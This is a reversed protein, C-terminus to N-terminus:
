VRSTPDNEAVRYIVDVLVACGEYGEGPAMYETGALETDIALGGHTRDSMVAQVVATEFQHALTDIPTESSESVRLYLDISFTQRWAIAPPAGMRDYERERTRESALLVIGYNAPSAEVGTRTPRTVESVTVAYGNDTTVAELTAQLATALQEVIATAM